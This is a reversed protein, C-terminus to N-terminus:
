YCFGFIAVGRESGLRNKVKLAGADLWVNLKGDTDPNAGALGVDTSTGADVVALTSQYGSVIAWTDISFNSTIFYIGYGAYGIQDFTGSADDALLVWQTGMVGIGFTNAVDKGTIQSIREIGKRAGAAGAGDSGTLFGVNNRASVFATAVAGGIDDRVLAIAGGAGNVCGEIDMYTTDGDGFLDILAVTLNSVYCDRITLYAAPVAATAVYSTYDVLNTITAWVKVNRITVPSEQHPNVAGRAIISLPPNAGTHYVSFGDILFGTDRLDRSTANIVSEVGHGVYYAQGGIIQGEGLQLDIDVLGWGRSFGTDRYFHPDTITVNQRQIKISRGWCNIYEGGYIRTHGKYRSTATPIPHNLSIGDLNSYRTNDDDYINEIYPDRIVINRSWSTVGANNTVAIGQVATELTVTRGINKIVPRVINTNRFGGQVYLGQAYTADDSLINEVRIDVLTADGISADLMDTAAINEVWFGVDAMDDGDFSLGEVYADYSSTKIRAIYDLSAASINLLASDKGTWKINNTATLLIESDVAYIIGEAFKLTCGGSDASIAAAQIEPADDTAGDGVAGYWEVHATGGTTYEVIGDGTFIHQRPRANIISPNHITLVQAASVSIRGNESVFDFMENRTATDTFDETVNGSVVITVEETEVFTLLSRLHAFWSTSLRTGDLFDIDGAGAFIQYKGAEISGINSLTDGADVTIIFPSEWRLTVNNGVAMDDDTTEAESILMTLTDDSTVDLAEDLDVFWSTKVTTGVAFDIDGAGTFIQRADAFIKTTQLTLQGSNAISGDREFRLTVNAPITLATVVQASPIVITRVNAGVAAVALNLTTYARPDTWIGDPSTVIVDRFFPEAASVPLALSILIILYLLIRKM